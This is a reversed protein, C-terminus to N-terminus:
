THPVCSVTLARINGWSPDSNFMLVRGMGMCREREERMNMIPAFSKEPPPRGLSCRNDRNILPFVAGNELFKYDREVQCLSRSCLLVARFNIRSNHDVSVSKIGFSQFWFLKMESTLIRGFGNNPRFLKKRGFSPLASIGFHFRFLIRNGM